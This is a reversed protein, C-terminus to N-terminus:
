NLISLYPLVTQQDMTQICKLADERHLYLVFAVGKSKRTQRDKVITVRDSVVFSFIFSRVHKM